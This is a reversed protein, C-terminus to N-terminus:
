NKFIEGNPKVWYHIINLRELQPVVYGIAKIIDDDFPHAIAVLDNPFSVKTEMTKVIAKGFHTKIQGSNFYKRKKTPADDSAKAGKVEVILKQGDKEAVIDYGRKQGLCYSTINYGKDKLWEILLEVTQDETLKKSNM